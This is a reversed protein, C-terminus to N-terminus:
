SPVDPVAIAEVLGLLGLQFSAREISMGYHSRAVDYLQYGLIVVMGTTAIISSFRALWFLRYDAIHLPSSPEKM